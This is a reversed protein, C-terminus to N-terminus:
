GKPGTEGRAQLLQASKEPRPPLPLRITRLLSRLWAIEPSLLSGGVLACGGLAWLLHLLSLPRCDSNLFVYQM